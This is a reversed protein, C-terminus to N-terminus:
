KLKNNKVLEKYKSVLQQALEQYTIRIGEVVVYTNENYPKLLPIVEEAEKINNSCLYCNVISYFAKAATKGFENGNDLASISANPYNAIVQNFTEISQEIQKMKFYCLGINYLADDTLDSSSYEDILMNFKHIADLYFEDKALSLGETFYQIEKDHM